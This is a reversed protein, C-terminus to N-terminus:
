TATAAALGHAVVWAAVQARSHLGLKDLIHTVHTDATRPAIVLAEAIERNSCGRTVLAAVQRERPSLTALSNNASYQRRTSPGPRYPAVLAEDIAEDLTMVRGSAWASSAATAGLEIQVRAIAEQYVVDARQMHSLSAGLNELEAEAAGFLRGARAPEHQELTLSALGALTYAQLRRNGLEQWILLAEGLLAAARALDGVRRAGRALGDLAFCIGRRNGLERSLALGEGYFEMARGDDGQDFARRGFDHLAYALGLREGLERFITLSQGGLDASALQDGRSTAEASLLYLAFAAGWQFGIERALVLCEDLLPGSRHRQGRDRFTFALASLALTATHWDHHTRALALSEQLLNTASELEGLGYTLWGAGLMIGAQLPSGDTARAAADLWNRGEDFHGHLYWFWWLARALQGLALSRGGRAQSWALAVRINHHEAELRDLWRVQEARYLHPAAENALALCWDRHLGYIQEAEGAAELKETAYQRVTELMRYRAAKGHHEAVVLSKGVLAALLDLVNSASLGHGGCVAEASELTWGGAFVALRRLLVREPESLLEHSWDLTGRLTQQRPLATRSGQTLLDFRDGLRAAIQEVSLASLRAAALEVALPIGDLQRCLQTIPAATQDTLAFGPLVARARDLFLRVAESDAVQEASLSSAADPLQLSPVWWVTEGVIRLAQRSTALVQLRPCARLLLEVLEACGQILHECNDLVVLLDRRYLADLLTDVLARGPQEYIHLASAITKPVLAVDMQPALDVLWVGDSYNTAMGAAVRLALRTKGVGGTGTLTLLRTTGLLRQVEGIAQERGVFSSLEAPLNQRVQGVGVPWQSANPRGGEGVTSTSIPRREPASTVRATARARVLATEHEGTLGLADVLRRLTAPYPAQRVGRELDSIGRRSLGARAALEKQSLRAEIRYQYLLAGFKPPGTEM